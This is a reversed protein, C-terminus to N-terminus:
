FKYNVGASLLLRDWLDAIKYKLEVNGTLKDTLKYDLGGGLNIAFYSSSASVKGLGYGINVSSGSNLIGLGALPYVTLKDGVPFLWHGNVSFDWMTVYNKKLFYNFAGELRLPDTVNYQFKAGVGINSLSNGSGFVLNAGAAMDGKEQASVNM